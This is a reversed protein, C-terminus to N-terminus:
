GRVNGAGYHLEAPKTTVSETPESDQKTSNVAIETTNLLSAANATAAVLLISSFILKM